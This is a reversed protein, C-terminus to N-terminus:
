NVKIRPYKVQNKSYGRKKLEAMITKDVDSAIFAHHWGILKSDSALPIAEEFAKKAQEYEGSESQFITEDLYHYREVPVMKHTVEDEFDETFSEVRSSTFGLVLSALMDGRVHESGEAYKWVMEKTISYKDVLRNLELNAEFGDRSEESYFIQQLLNINAEKLNITLM